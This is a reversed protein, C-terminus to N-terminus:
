SLAELEDRKKAARREDEESISVLCITHSETTTDMCTMGARTLYTDSERSKKMRMM